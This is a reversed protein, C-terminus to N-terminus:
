LSYPEFGSVELTYYWGPQLNEVIFYGGSAIPNTSRNGDIYAYQGQAEANAIYGDISGTEPLYIPELHIVGLPTNEGAIVQVPM